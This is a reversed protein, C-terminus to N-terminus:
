CAQHVIEELQGTELRAGGCLLTLDMGTSSRIESAM